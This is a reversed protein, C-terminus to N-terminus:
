YVSISSGDPLRRWPQRHRQLIGLIWRKDPIAFRLSPYHENVGGQPPAEGVGWDALITSWAERRRARMIHIPDLGYWSGPPVM